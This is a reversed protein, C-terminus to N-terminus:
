RPLRATQAASDQYRNVEQEIQDRVSPANSEPHLFLPRGDDDLPVANAPIEITDEFCLVARAGLLEALKSNWELDDHFAAALSGDTPAQDIVIAFPPRKDDIGEPLPLIQIRPM